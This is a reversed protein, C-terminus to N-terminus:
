SLNPPEIEFWTKEHKKYWLVICLNYEEGLHRGGLM